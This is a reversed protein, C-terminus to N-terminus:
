FSSNAQLHYMYLRKMEFTALLHLCSQRLVCNSLFLIFVLRLFSAHSAPLAAVPSFSGLACWLIHLRLRSSRSGDEAKALVLKLPVGVHLAFVSM